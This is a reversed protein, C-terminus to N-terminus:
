ELIWQCELKNNIISWHATMARSVNKQTTNSSAIAIGKEIEFSPESKRRSDIAM